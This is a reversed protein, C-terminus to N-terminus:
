DFFGEQQPNQCLSYQRILGNPLHLDVHAGAEVRPLCIGKQASELELM